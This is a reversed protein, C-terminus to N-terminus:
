QCLQAPLVHYGAGEINLALGFGFYERAKLIATLRHTGQSLSRRISQDPRVYGREEWKPSVHFLNEGTFVDEGDVQFTIEDSFGLHFVFEGAEDVRMECTLRVAQESVPLYRNLNLIGNAEADVVGFGDLFWEMVAGAPMEENPAQETGLGFDPADDGVRLNAFYAPLFTWLGLLGRQHPHALQHVVLPEQKGVQIRATQDQFEIRLHHWTQAPVDVNKQAQSGYYLQWTNSGHFVPDYQLADWCGSTHPQIYALEYNLSDRVRFAIGPYAAGESGLDVEIWGQALSLGPVLLLSAGQGSLQLAKKGQWDCIVPQPDRIFLEKPDPAQCEYLITM